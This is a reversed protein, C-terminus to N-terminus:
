QDGDRKDSNRKNGRATNISFVFIAVLQNAEDMLDEVREKRILESEVLLEMWYISEDAEEEVIGMKAIFDAQSKARCAARYNAGVSAGCKALQRGIVNAVTGPPLSEVLRIIRLAFAKTRRKLDDSNM